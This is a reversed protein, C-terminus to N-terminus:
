LRWLIDGTHVSSVKERLSHLDEGISNGECVEVITLGVESELKKAIKEMGRKANGSESGYICLVRAAADRGGKGM